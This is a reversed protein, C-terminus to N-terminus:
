DFASLHMSIGALAVIFAASLPITQKIMFVVRSTSEPVASDNYYLPSSHSGSRNETPRTSCENRRLRKPLSTQCRVSTLKQTYACVRDRVPCLIFSRHM